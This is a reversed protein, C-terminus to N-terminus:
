VAFDWQKDMGFSFIQMRCKWERWRGEKAVVLRNEMDLIKKRHFPENTGYILNWIYIMDYPLQRERESKNWKTHTELEVWTAAFPRVKNELIGNQM